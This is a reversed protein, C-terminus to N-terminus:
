SCLYTNIWGTNEPVPRARMMVPWIEEWGETPGGQSFGFSADARVTYSPSLIYQTQPDLTLPGRAGPLTKGKWTRVYAAGGEAGERLVDALLLGTDWGLLAAHSPARKADTMFAKTFTHNEQRDLESMWPVQGKLTFPIHLDGFLQVLSPDVVMPSGWVVLKDAHPVKGLRDLFHHAQDGSFTALLTRVEPHDTLFREMPEYQAAGAMHPSVFVYAMEGADHQRYAESSAHGLSYGGDYFSTVMATQDGLAAAQKGALWSHLVEALTHFLVNPPPASLGPYKAGHGVVIFPKDVHRALPFLDAVRPYDAFVVLLDAGEDLICREAATMTVKSDVGFGINENILSIDDSLGHTQLFSRLGGMFDHSILPVTTSKPLLVGAIM